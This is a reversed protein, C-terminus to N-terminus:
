FTGSVSCGPIGPRKYILNWVFLLLIQVHVASDLNCVIQEPDARRVATQRQKLADVGNGAANGVVRVDHQVLLGDQEVGDIVGDGALEEFVEFVHEVAAREVVDDDMVHLRVVGLGEAVHHQAMRFRLDDAVLLDALHDAVEEGKVNVGAGDDYVLAVRDAEALVGEREDHRRHHM